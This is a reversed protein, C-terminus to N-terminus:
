GAFIPDLHDDVLFEIGTDGLPSCTPTLYGVVNSFNEKTDFLVTVLASKMKKGYIQLGAFNFLLKRNFPKLHQDSHQSDDDPFECTATASCESRIRYLYM